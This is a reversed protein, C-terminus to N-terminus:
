HINPYIVEAITGLNDIAQGAGAQRDAWNNSRLHNLVFSVNEAFSYKYAWESGLVANTCLDSNFFAELENALTQCALMDFDGAELARVRYMLVGAINNPSAGVSMVACSTTLALACVLSILKTLMKRKM